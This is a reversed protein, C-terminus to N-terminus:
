DLRRPRPLRRQHKPRGSRRLYDPGARTPEADPSVGPGAALTQHAAARGLALGGRAPLLRRALHSFLALIRGVPAPVHHRGGVGPRPRHARSTEDLPKRRSHRRSRGRLHLPTAPPHEASAVRAPAAVLAACLTRRCPGRRATGGAPPHRLAPRLAHLGSIGGGAVFRVHAPCSQTVSLLWHLQRGARPLAAARSVPRRRRRLLPLPEHTRHRSAEARSAPAPAPKKQIDLEQGQRRNAARLERM